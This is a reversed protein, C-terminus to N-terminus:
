NVQENPARWRWAGADLEYPVGASACFVRAFAFVAIDCIVDISVGAATTVRVIGVGEITLAVPEWRLVLRVDLCLDGGGVVQLRLQVASGRIHSAVADRACRYADAASTHTTVTEGCAVRWRLSGLHVDGFVTASGGAGHVLLAVTAGAEREDIGLQAALQGTAVM